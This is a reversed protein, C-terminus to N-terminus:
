GIGTAITREPNSIEYPILLMPHRELTSSNECVKKMSQKEDMKHQIKATKPRLKEIVMRAAKCM